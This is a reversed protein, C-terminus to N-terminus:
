LISNQFIVPEPFAKSCLAGSKRRAGPGSPSVGLTRPLNQFIPSGECCQTV